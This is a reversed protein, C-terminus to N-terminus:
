GAVWSWLTLGAWIAIVVVLAIIMRTEKRDREAM